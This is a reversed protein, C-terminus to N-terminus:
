TAPDPTSPPTPGPRITPIRCPPPQWYDPSFDPDANKGTVRYCRRQCLSVGYAAALALFTEYVIPNGGVFAAALISYLWYIIGLDPFDAHVRLAGEDTGSVEKNVHIHVNKTLFDDLVNVAPYKTVDSSIPKSWKSQYYETWHLQVQVQKQAKLAEVNSALDKFFLDAVATNNNTATSPSASQTTGIFTLWFLNLKGRWIAIAIHDGEVAPTVVDWGSWTGNSYNRYYYKHPLAFTRGLVHLTSLGPTVLDQDLYSAVIDLRARDNLGNLYNLFADEM